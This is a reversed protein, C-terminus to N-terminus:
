CRFSDFWVGVVVRMFCLSVGDRAIYLVFKNQLDGSTEAYFKM